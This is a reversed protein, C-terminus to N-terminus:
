YRGLLYLFSGSLCIKYKQRKKSNDEYNHTTLEFKNFKLSQILYNTGDVNAGLTPSCIKNFLYSIVFFKISFIHYLRKLNALM